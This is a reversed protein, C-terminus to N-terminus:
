PAIVAHSGSVAHTTLLPLPANYKSPAPERRTSTTNGLVESIEIHKQIRSPPISLAITLLLGGDLSEPYAILKLVEYKLIAPAHRDIVQVAGVDEM